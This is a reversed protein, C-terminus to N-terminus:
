DVTGLQDGDGPAFPGGIPFHGLIRHILRDLYAAEGATGAAGFGELDVPITFRLGVPAIPPEIATIGPGDLREFFVIRVQVTGHMRIEGKGGHFYNPGSPM